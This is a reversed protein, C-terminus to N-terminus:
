ETSADIIEKKNKAKIQKLLDSTTGVFVAKEINIPRSMGLDDKIKKSEYLKVQTDMFNMNTENLTKIMLAAAEYFRPHQGASATTLIEQLAAKGLEMLEQTNDRSTRYDELLEAELKIDSLNPDIVTPTTNGVVMGSGSAIIQQSTNAMINIDSM